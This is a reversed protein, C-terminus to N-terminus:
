RGGLQQHGTIRSGNMVARQSDSIRLGGGGFGGLEGANRMKGLPDGGSIATLVAGIYGFVWGDHIQM